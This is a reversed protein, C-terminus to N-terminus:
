RSDPRGAFAGLLHGCTEAAVVMMHPSLVEIPDFNWVAQQLEVCLRFETDSTCRRVTVPATEALM